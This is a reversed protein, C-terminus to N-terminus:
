NKQLEQQKQQQVQFNQLKMQQQEQEFRIKERDATIEPLRELSKLSASNIKEVKIINADAKSKDSFNAKKLANSILAIAEDNSASVESLIKSEEELQNVRKILSSISEDVVKLRDIGTNSSENLQETALTTKKLQMKSDKMENYMLVGVGGIATAILGGVVGVLIGELLRQKLDM